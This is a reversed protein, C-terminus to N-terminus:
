SYDNKKVDYYLKVPLEEGKRSSRIYIPIFM